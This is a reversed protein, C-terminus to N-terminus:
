GEEEQHKGIKIYFCAGAEMNDFSLEGNCHEEVITRALFLDLGSSVGERTTFYPDFVKDTDAADVGGANDCIKIVVFQGTEYCEIDIRPLEISREVLVEMANRIVGLLVQLLENRYLPLSLSCEFRSRVTIDHAKLEAELLALAEQVSQSLEVAERQAEQQFTRHFFDLTQDMEDLLQQALVVESFKKTEAEQLLRKLGAIPEQWRHRMMKSMQAMARMKAHQVVVNDRRRQRGVEEKVKAALSANFDRLAEERLLIQERYRRFVTSVWYALAVGSLAIFAILFLAPQWYGQPHITEYRSLAALFVDAGIFAALLAVGVPLLAVLWLLLTESRRRM